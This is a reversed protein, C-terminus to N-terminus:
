QREFCRCIAIADQLPNLSQDKGYIFIPHSCIDDYVWVKQDIYFQEKQIQSANPSMMPVHFLHQNTRILHACPVFLGSNIQAFLGLLCDVTRKGAKRPFNTEQAHTQAFIPRRNAILCRQVLCEMMKSYTQLTSTLSHCNLETRTHESHRQCSAAM